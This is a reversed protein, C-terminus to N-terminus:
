EKSLVPLLDYVSSQAPSYYLGKVWDRSYRRSLVQSNMIGIVDELWIEQLRYYAAQRVADTQGASGEAILRDVEPNSYSARGYYAGYTHMYHFVYNAPDIFDPAWGIYFVPLSKARNLNVYEAWEIGRTSVDFKPNLSAINEALLRVIAARDDNGTNYLLELKFGQEWLKGAWAARFHQEAKALDYPYLELSEDKYPLGFPVPTVPAFATGNSIDVEYTKQDWAYSFGLRVDKDTFFNSPIGAGDLKGSGIYPNSTPINLNFNLGGISLSPLDRAITIGAEGEMEPYNVANVSAIDVDGQLLALKRTTWEDMVRYIGYKLAPRKGHYGDFREVVMEVGKEWRNLMYPGTGNEIDWLTEENADIQNYEKWTAATGDWGGNAIVFDKNVISAWRGALIAVFAGSPQSLNFQVFDGDVEVANDIVDFDLVYDDGDRASFFGDTFLEYWIADVGGVDDAVMNREFTYEVDEPTLESGDHFKIGKKVKVRVTLGDASVLGNAKTPIQEILVPVFNTTSAGDYGVLRDYILGIHTWSATDYAKSPDLSDITGSTGFVLTDPNKIEPAPAAAAIPAAAEAAEEQPAGAFLFGGALLVLLLAIVAKKM